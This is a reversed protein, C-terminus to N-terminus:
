GQGPDLKWTCAGGGGEAGGEAGAWLTAVLWFLDDSTHSNKHEYWGIVFDGLGCFYKDARGRGSVGGRDERHHRVPIFITSGLWKAFYGKLPCPPTKM